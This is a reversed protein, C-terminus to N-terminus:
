ILSIHTRRKMWEEFRMLRLGASRAKLTRFVTRELASEVVTANNKGSANREVLEIGVDAARVRSRESFLFDGFAVANVVTFRERKNDNAAKIRLRLAALAEEVKRPAFRPSSAGSLAEGAATTIWKGNNSQKVYGQASFIALIQDVEVNKIRLIKSLDRATWDLESRMDRLFSMVAQAPVAEQIHSECAM